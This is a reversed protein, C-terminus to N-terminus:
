RLMELRHLIVEANADINDNCDYDPLVCTKCMPLIERGHRSLMIRFFNKARDGNWIKKFSATKLDGWVYKREWDACCSTVEGDSNIIVSYFPYPCVAVHTIEQGHMGSVKSGANDFEDTIDYDAWLPIVKDVFMRDCINDFIRYFEEIAKGSELAEDVIKVYIEINKGRSQRYLDAINDIFQDFDIHRGCIKYYGEANLAEISIRIRDIGSEVLRRNLEPSFQSGNTITEIWNAVDASKAYRVMDAFRPHLLPEGNGNIRLVRLKDPMEKLDDIIKMYLEWDMMQKQFNVKRKDHQIACFRCDFNCLNCPDLAVSFPTALPLAEGLNCRNRTVINDKLAGMINGGDGYWLAIESRVKLM